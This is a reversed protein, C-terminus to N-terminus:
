KTTLNARATLVLNPLQITSNQLSSMNANACLLFASILQHFSVSLLFLVIAEGVLSWERHAQKTFM